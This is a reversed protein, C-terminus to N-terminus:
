RSRGSRGSRCSRWGDTTAASSGSARPSSKRSTTASSTAGTGSSTPASRPSSRRRAGHARPGDGLGPRAPPPQQVGDDRGQERLGARLPDRPGRRDDRGGAGLRGGRAPHGARGDRRPDPRPPALLLARPLPRHGARGRAPRRREGAGRPEGAPPGRLRQRVRLHGRLGPQARRERSRQRPLPLLLSRLRPARRARARGRGAGAVAAAAPPPLLSGVRRAPPQLPPAPDEPPRDHNTRRGAGLYVTQGPRAVPGLPPQRSGSPKRPSVEQAFSARM